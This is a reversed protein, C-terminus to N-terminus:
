LPPSAEGQPLDFNVAVFGGCTRLAYMIGDRSGRRCSPALGRCRRREEAQALVAADEALKRRRLSRGSLYRPSSVNRRRTIREMRSTIIEFMILHSRFKAAFMDSLYIVVKPPVGICTKSATQVPMTKDKMKAAIMPTTEAVDLGDATSAGRMATDSADRQGRAAGRRVLARTRDTAGLTPASRQSLDTITPAYFRYGSKGIM